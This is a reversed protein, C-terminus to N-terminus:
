SNGRRQGPNMKLDIQRPMMGIFARVRVESRYAPAEDGAREAGKASRNLPKM